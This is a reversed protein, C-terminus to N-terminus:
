IGKYERAIRKLYDRYAAAAKKPKIIYVDRDMSALWGYFAPTSRLPIVLIFNGYGKDKYEGEDGFYERIEKERRLSCLLRMKKEEGAPKEQFEGESFVEEIPSEEKEESAQTEEEREKEQIERVPMERAPEEQLSAEEQGAKLSDKWEQLPGMDALYYGGPRGRKYRVDMGFARLAEFDDYISKREASIGCEALQGLIEQMTM